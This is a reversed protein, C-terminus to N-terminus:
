LALQLFRDEGILHDRPVSSLDGYKTAFTKVQWGSTKQNRKSPPLTSGALVVEELNTAQPKRAM